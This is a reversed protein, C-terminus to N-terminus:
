AVNTKFIKALTMYTMFELQRDLSPKEEIKVNFDCMAIVIDPKQIRDCDFKLQNYFDDKIEKDKEETPAYLNIILINFWRGRTRLVSIRDYVPTFSPALGRTKPCM